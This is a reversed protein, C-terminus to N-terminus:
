EEELLLKEYREAVIPYKQKVRKDLTLEFDSVAKPDEGQKDSLLVLQEYVFNDSPKRNSPQSLLDRFKVTATFYDDTQEIRPLEHKTPKLGKQKESANWPIPVPKENM